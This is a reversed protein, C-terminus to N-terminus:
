HLPLHSQQLWDPSFLIVLHLSADSFSYDYADILLSSLSTLIKSFSKIDLALHTYLHTLIALTSGM